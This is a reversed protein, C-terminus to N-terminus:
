VRIWLIGGENKRDGIKRSIASVELGVIFIFLIIIGLEVEILTM